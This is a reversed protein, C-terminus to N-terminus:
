ERQLGRIRTAEGAPSVRKPRFSCCLVFITSCNILSIAGLSVRGSPVGSSYALPFGLDWLPWAAFGLTGFALSWVFRLCRQSFSWIGITLNWGHRLLWAIQFIPRELKGLGHASKHLLQWSREGVNFVNPLQNSSGARDRRVPDLGVFGQALFIGSALSSKGFLLLLFDGIKAIVRYRSLAASCQRGLRMSLRPALVSKSKKM